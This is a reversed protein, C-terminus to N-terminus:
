NLPVVPNFGAVARKGLPEVRTFDIMGSVDGAGFLAAFKAYNGADDARFQTSAGAGIIDMVGLAAVHKSGSTPDLETLDASHEAFSALIMQWRRLPSGDDSFRTSAEVPTGTEPMEADEVDTASLRGRRPYRSRRRQVRLDTAAVNTDFFDDNHHLIKEELFARGLYQQTPDGLASFITQRDHFFARDEDTKGPVRRNADFQLPFENDETWLLPTVVRSRYDESEGSAIDALRDLHFHSDSKSLGAQRFLRDADYGLFGSDPNQTRNRVLINLPDYTADGTSYERNIDYFRRNYTIPDGQQSDRTSSPDFGALAERIARATALVQDYITSDIQSQTNDVVRWLRVNNARGRTPINSFKSDLYITTTGTGSQGGGQNQNQDVVAAVKVVFGNTRLNPPLLRGVPNNNGTQQAVTEVFLTEGVSIQSRGIQLRVGSGGGGAQGTSELQTPSTVNWRGPLPTPSLISVRRAAPIRFIKNYQPVAGALIQTKNRELFQIALEIQQQAVRHNREISIAAKTLKLPDGVGSPDLMQDFQIMVKYDEPRIFTPLFKSGGFGDFIKRGLLNPIAENVDETTPDDDDSSPNTVDQPQALTVAQYAAHLVLVGLLVFARKRFM